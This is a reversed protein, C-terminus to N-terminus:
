RQSVLERLKELAELRAKKLEEFVFHTGDDLGKHVIAAAWFILFAVTLWYCLTYISYFAVFIFNTQIRRRKDIEELEELKKTKEELERRLITENSNDVASITKARIIRIDDLLAHDNCEPCRPSNALWTKVCSNGFLHGCKLSCVRHSGTSTWVDFCISCVDSESESKTEQTIDTVLEAIQATKKKFFRGFM